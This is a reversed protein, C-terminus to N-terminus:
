EKLAQIEADNPFATKALEVLRPWVGRGFAAIRSASETPPGCYLNQCKFCVLVEVVGRDSHVRFAIGPDFCFIRNDGFAGYASLASALKRAFDEGQDQGQAIVVWGGIREEDPAKPKHNVPGKYVGLRFVEVKTASNLVAMTEGGFRNPGSGTYTIIAWFGVGLGLGVAATVILCSRKRTM